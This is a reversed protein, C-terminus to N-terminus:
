KYHALKACKSNPLHFFLHKIGRSLEFCQNIIQAPTKAQGGVHSLFIPIQRLKGQIVWFIPVVNRRQLGEFLLAM